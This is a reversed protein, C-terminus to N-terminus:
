LHCHLGIHAASVPAGFAGQVWAPTGFAGWIGPTQSCWSPMWLGHFSANWPSLWNLFVKCACNCPMLLTFPQTLWGETTDFSGGVQGSAVCPSCMRGQVGCVSPAM